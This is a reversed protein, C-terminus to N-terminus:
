NCIKVNAATPCSATGTIKCGKNECAKRDASTDKGSGSRCYQCSSGSACMFCFGSGADTRTVLFAFSFVFLCLALILVIKKM